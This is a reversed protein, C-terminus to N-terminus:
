AKDSVGAGSFTAMNRHLHLATKALVAALAAGSGEGLRMGLDLLPTAGIAELAQTHATEASVHAFMCHDIAAPNVAHAIAAAATAVFGDVVVPVKQQRAAILAGLMAAIERGGLRALVALPDNLADRHLALARDVADAKRALGADDVGAGRGVWDAGTGGYLAAYIAAAITTNGIGMEGVCLLDTGGAIAEMGYAITAACTRDDM